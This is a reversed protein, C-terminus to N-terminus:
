SLGRRQRRLSTTLARRRYPSAASQSPDLRPSLSATPAATPAPRADFRTVAQPAPNRSAVAGDRTGAPSM